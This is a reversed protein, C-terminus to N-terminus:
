KFWTELLHAQEGWCIITRVVGTPDVITINIVPELKDELGRQKVNKYEVRGMAVVIFCRAAKDDFVRDNSSRNVIVVDADEAQVTSTEEKILDEDDDAWLHDENCIDENAAARLSPQDSVAAATSSSSKEVKKTAKSQPSKGMAFNQSNRSNSQLWNNTIHMTRDVSKATPHYMKMSMQDHEDGDHRFGGDNKTHASVQSNSFTVSVLYAQVVRSILAVDILIDTPRVSNM